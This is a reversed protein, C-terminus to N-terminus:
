GQTWVDLLVPRGRLGAVTLPAANFWTLGPPFEPARVAAPYAEM